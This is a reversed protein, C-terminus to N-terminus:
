GNPTVESSPVPGVDVRTWHGDCSETDDSLLRCAAAPRTLSFGVNRRLAAEKLSTSLLDLTGFHGLLSTTDGTLGFM